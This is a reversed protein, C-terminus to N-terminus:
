GATVSTDTKQHLDALCDRLRPFLRPMLAIPGPWVPEHNEVRLTYERVRYRRKRGDFVAAYFTM